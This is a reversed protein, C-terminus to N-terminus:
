YERSVLRLVVTNEIRNPIEPSEEGKILSNMLLEQIAQCYSLQM